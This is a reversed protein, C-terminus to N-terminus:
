KNPKKETHTFCNLKNENELIKRKGYEDIIEWDM